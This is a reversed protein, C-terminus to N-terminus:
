PFELVNDNVSTSFDGFSPLLPQNLCIILTRLFPLIKYISTKKNEIGM